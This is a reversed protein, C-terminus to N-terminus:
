RDFLPPPTESPSIYIDPNIDPNIRLGRATVNVEFVKELQRESGYRSVIATTPLEIGEFRRHGTLTLLFVEGEGRPRIRVREIRGHRV